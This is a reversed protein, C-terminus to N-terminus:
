ADPPQDLLQRLYHALAHQTFPKTLMHASIDPHGFHAIAQATYGSMFLVKLAPYKRRAIEAIEPGSMGGPMVIDTLLLDIKKPQDLVRLASPGDEAEITDYGLEDLFRRCMRRLEPSDEVLLVAEGQGPSPAPPPRCAQDRDEEPRPLFIKVTTGMNPESYIKLHGGSQKVFGYVMSLGLGTGKGAQKTTFFPELVHEVIDPSMGTGTDTVSLQVYPGPTVDLNRSAYAADLECNEASITLIGGDPMADRGSIALNILANELQSVDIRVPWLDSALITKIKVSEEILRHLVRALGPIVEALQVTSPSLPQQRSYALLRHTLEAGRETAALADNVLEQALDSGLFQRHLLELNGLVVGLINNFDHAIGGTLQGIAELKQSQRLQRELGHQTTVDFVSLLVISQGDMVVARLSVDAWVQRNKSTKYTGTYSHVEDPNTATRIWEIVSGSDAPLGGNEETVRFDEFRRGLVEERTGDLMACLADNVLRFKGDRDLHAIGIPALNFTLWYQDVAAQRAAEADRLRERNQEVVIGYALEEGLRSFLNLEQPGFANPQDAYVILAGLVKEDVKFPVTLSSRIGHRLGRERWHAYSPDTLSDRMIHAVGSRLARGTPGRGELADASQALHLGDLYGLAPGAGALIRLPRDEPQDAQVACALIYVDNETIAGCVRSVLETVSRSRILASASRAYASLAWNLRRLEAETDSAAINLVRWLCTEKRSVLFSPSVYM